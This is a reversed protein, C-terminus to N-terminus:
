FIDSELNIWLASHVACGDDLVFYGYNVGGFSYVIESFTSM